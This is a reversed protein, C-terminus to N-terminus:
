LDVIDNSINSVILNEINYLKYFEYLPSFPIKTNRKSHWIGNIKTIRFVNRNNDTFINCAERVSGPVLSKATGFFQAGMFM